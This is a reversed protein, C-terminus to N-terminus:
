LSKDYNFSPTKSGSASVGLDYDSKHDFWIKSGDEEDEFKRIYPVKPLKLLNTLERDVDMVTPRKKPDTAWCRSMIAWLEATRKFSSRITIDDRLLKKPIIAKTGKVQKMQTLDDNIPRKNVIEYM